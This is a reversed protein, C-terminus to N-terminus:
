FKTEIASFALTCRFSSFNLQQLLIERFTMRVQLCNAKHIYLFSPTPLKIMILYVLYKEDVFNNELNKRWSWPKSVKYILHHPYTTLQGSNVNLLQGTGSSM